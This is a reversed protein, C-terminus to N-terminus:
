KKQRLFKALDWFFLRLWEVFGYGLTFYKNYGIQLFLNKWKATKGIYIRTRNRVMKKWQEYEERLHTPMAVTDYYAFLYSDVFQPPM